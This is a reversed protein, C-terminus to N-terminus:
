EEKYSKFQGLNNEIEIINENNTKGIETLDSLSRYIEKSMSFIKDIENLTFTSSESINAINNNIIDSNDNIELAVKKIEQSINTLAVTSDVIEKSGIALEKINSNLEEMSGAINQIGGVINNLSEEASKNLDNSEHIEKIVKKLVEGISKSNQATLESLKRIEDAVVSFGKGSDGAHAAEISANMALLNTQNSINDIIKLMNLIDNTSEAIKDIMEFSQKMKKQGDDAIDSLNKTLNRKDEVVNEINYLTTSMEEISTSTKNINEFQNNISESINKISQTIYTIGSVANKIEENLAKITNKDLEISKTIEESSISIIEIVDSLKKSMEKNKLSTTKIKSIIVKLKQIFENFNRSLEGIEDKSSIVIEQTLDGNGRAIEIVKKQLNSLPKLISNIQAASLIILLIILMIFFIIIKKLMADYNDMSTKLDIKSTGLENNKIKALNNQLDHLKEYSFILFMNSSDINTDLSEIVKYVWEKYDELQNISIEYNNKNKSSILDSQSEIELKNKITDLTTKIKNEIESTEPNKQDALAQTVLQNLNLHVDLMTELLETTEYFHSFKVQFINALSKKQININISVFVLSILFTIIIIVPTIILKNKISFKISKIKKM